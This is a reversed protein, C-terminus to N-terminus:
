TKLTGQITLKEYMYGGNYDVPIPCLITKLWCETGHMAVSKCNPLENCRELCVPLEIGSRYEILNCYIEEFEMKERQSGDTGIKKRSVKGIIKKKAVGEWILLPRRRVWFVDNFFEM